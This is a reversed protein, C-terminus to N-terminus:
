LYQKSSAHARELLDNAQPHKVTVLDLNVELICCIERMVLSTSITYMDSLKIKPIYSTRLFMKLLQKAVNQASANRLTIAFLNKSFVDKATLIFTFVPSDSRESVLEIQRSRRSFM